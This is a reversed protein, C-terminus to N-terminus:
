SRKGAISRAITEAVAGTMAARNDRLAPGLVPRAAQHRTGFERAIAGAGEVAVIARSELRAQAIAQVGQNRLATVLIEAAALAGESAARRLAMQSQTFLPITM